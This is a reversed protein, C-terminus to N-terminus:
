KPLLQALTHMHWGSDESSKGGSVRTSQSFFVHWSGNQWVFFDSTLDPKHGADSSSWNWTAYAVAVNDHMSIALQPLKLPPHKQGKSKATNALEDALRKVEGTSTVEVFDSTLLCREFSTDGQALAITWAKELQEITAADKQQRQLAQGDCAGDARAQQAVLAGVSVLGCVVRRAVGMLM